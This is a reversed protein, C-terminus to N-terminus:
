PVWPMGQRDDQRPQWDHVDYLAAAVANAVDALQLAMAYLEQKAHQRGFGFCPCTDAGCPCNPYVYHSPLGNGASVWKANASDPM